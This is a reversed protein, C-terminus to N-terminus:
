FHSTFPVRHKLRLFAVVSCERTDEKIDASTEVSKKAGQQLEAESM